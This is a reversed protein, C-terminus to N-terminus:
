YQFKVKVDSEVKSRELGRDGFKKINELVRVLVTREHSFLVPRHTIRQRSKTTM